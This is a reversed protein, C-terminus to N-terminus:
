QKIFKFNAQQGQHILHLFYMGSNLYHINIKQDNNVKGQLCMKGSIDFIKFHLSNFRNQSKISIEDQTPNPFIFFLKNLTGGIATSITTTFSKLPSWETKETSNCYM